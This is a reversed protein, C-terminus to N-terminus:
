EVAEKIYQQIERITDLLCNYDEYSLTDAHFKFDEELDYLKDEIIGLLKDKSM